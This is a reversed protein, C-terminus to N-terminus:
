SVTRRILMGEHVEDKLKHEPEAGIVEDKAANHEVEVVRLVMDGGVDELEEVQEVDAVDERWGIGRRQVRDLVEEANDLLPQSVVLDRRLLDEEESRAEPLLELVRQGLLQRLNRLLHEPLEGVLAVLLPCREQCALELLGVARSVEIPSRWHNLGVVGVREGGITLQRLKAGQEKKEFKRMEAEM